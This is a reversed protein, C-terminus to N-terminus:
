FLSQVVGGRLKLGVLLPDIREVLTKLQGLNAWPLLLNRARAARHLLSL